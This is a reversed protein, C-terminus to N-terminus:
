AADLCEIFDMRIRPSSESSKKQCNSSRAYLGCCLFCLIHIVGEGRTKVCPDQDRRSCTGLGDTRLETYEVHQLRSNM